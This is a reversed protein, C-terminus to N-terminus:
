TVRRYLVIEEDYSNECMLVNNSFPDPLFALFEKKTMKESLIEATQTKVQGNRSLSHKKNTNYLTGYKSWAFINRYLPHLEHGKLSM